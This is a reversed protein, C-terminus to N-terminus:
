SVPLATLRTPHFIFRTAPANATISQTIFSQQNKWANFAIALEHWDTVLTV